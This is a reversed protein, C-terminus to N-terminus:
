KGDWRIVSNKKAGFGKIPISDSFVEAISFANEEKEVMGRFSVHYIGKSLNFNSQHTHGHFIVLKGTFKEMLGRIEDANWLNEVECTPFIPFHCLIIVNEGAKEALSLQKKIWGTEGM